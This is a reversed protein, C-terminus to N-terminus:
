GLEAMDALCSPRLPRAPQAACILGRQQQPPNGCRNAYRGAPTFQRRQLIHSAAIRNKGPAAAIPLERLDQRNHFPKQM